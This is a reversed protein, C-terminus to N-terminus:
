GGDDGAPPIVAPEYGPPDAALDARQRAAELENVEIRQNRAMRAALDRVFPDRAHEAAYAAMHVGGRHHDQMLRLFLADTDRGSSDRLADLEAPSAMGPMSEVPLAMGMWAMATDSRNERRYGWDDLTRQMLGIEWAQFYVIERAFVQVGDETGNNIETWSMQIAQEHHSIMDQLFGVDVSGPGPPGDSRVGLYYGTAGALFMLAAIMAVWQGRSAPLFWALRSSPTEEPAAPEITTTM